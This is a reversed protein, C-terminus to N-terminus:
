WGWTGNQTAQVAWYFTHNVNVENTNARRIWIYFGTHGAPLEITGGSDRTFQKVYSPNTKSKVSVVVKGPTKDGLANYTYIRFKSTKKSNQTAFFHETTWSTGSAFRGTIWTDRTPMVVEKNTDYNNSTFSDNDRFSNVYIVESAEQSVSAAHVPLSFSTPTFIPGSMLCSRIMAHTQPGFIGDVDLHYRRQFARVGNRTNNGYWGDVTGCNFGLMNLCEQLWCVYNGSSDISLVTGYKPEPYSPQWCYGKTATESSIKDEFGISEAGAYIPLAVAAMIAALLLVLSKTFRTKM